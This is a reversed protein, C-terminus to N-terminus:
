RALGFERIAGHLVMLQEPTLAEVRELIERARPDTARMEAKEEDTLSLINLILLQDIEGGDFLDGPSEPAIRPHDELIIPACLVSTREGPEGVLVPWVGENRCGRAAAGLGEPPDTASVFAGDPARLLVHTSCFTHSLAQQRSGQGFPTTNCVQVTVRFLGSSLRRSGVQIEGTLGHWSRILAGAPDADQELLKQEERGAPIEIPFSRREALAGVELSPTPLEREVAEEWAMYREEGVILEDVPRMGEGHVRAVARDVVQLFRVTVEVPSEPPAELLIEARLASRDDDHLRAHAPPYVGGFTFRRQNKLASRRYPWLIYGEYLVTDAIARIPDTSM